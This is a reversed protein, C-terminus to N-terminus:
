ERRRREAVLQLVEEALRAANFDSAQWKSAIFSAVRAELLPLQRETIPGDPEPHFGLSRGVVRILKEVAETRASDFQEFRELLFWDFAKLLRSLQGKAVASMETLKKELKM